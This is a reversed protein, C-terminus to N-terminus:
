DIFNNIYLVIILDTFSIFFILISEIIKIIMDVAKRPQTWCCGGTEVGVGVEAGVGVSVIFGVTTGVVITGVGVGNNLFLEM